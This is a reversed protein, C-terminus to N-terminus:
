EYGNKYHRWKHRRKQRRHKIGMLALRKNEEKLIKTLIGRSKKCITSYNFSTLKENRGFQTVHIVRREHYYQLLKRAIYIIYEDYSAQYNKKRGLPVCEMDITYQKGGRILPIFYGKGGALVYMAHRINSTNLLENFLSINKIQYIDLVNVDQRYQDQVIHEIKNM